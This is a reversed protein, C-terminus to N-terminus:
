DLYGHEEFWRFTDAITENLPRPRYGLVRAAKEHSVLRHNRLANLSEGTYLPETGKLRASLGVLPVGLRAAWLPAVMRLTRRGTVRDVLRALDRISLWSGSLLFREGRKGLEEAALAGEVVDRVDVWDFGGNVLVKMGGHYLALLTRGMYSPKFDYPGLVATPNIIVADLGQEVAQLVLREAEAKSRDYASARGGLALPRSEDIAENRPESSFAHITSFHVFRGVGAARSAAIVNRTGEVNVRTGHGSDRRSISIHAALHYVVTSGSLAEGLSAPDLLEARVQEVELGEFGRRDRHVIVRVRRGRDLLSRVLNAGVHGSAGTVTVM